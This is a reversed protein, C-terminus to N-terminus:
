RHIRLMGIRPRVVGGEELWGGVVVAGCRDIAVASAGVGSFGTPLPILSSGGTGFTSDARGDDLLRAIGIRSDTAVGSLSSGVVLSKGGPEIVISSANDNRGDFDVRARGGTGFSSDIAGSPTLRLALFDVGGALGGVVPRGAANMALGNALDNSPGGFSSVFLGSQGFTSDLSGDVMLKM